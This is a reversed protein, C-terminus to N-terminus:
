FKVRRSQMRVIKKLLICISSQACLLLSVRCTSYKGCLYMYNILCLCEGETSRVHKVFYKELVNAVEHVGADRIATILTAWTLPRPDQDQNSGQLWESLFHYIPDDKKEITAIDHQQFRLAIAVRTFKPRLQDMLRFQVSSGDEANYKM